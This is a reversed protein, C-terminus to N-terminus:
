YPVLKVRALKERTCMRIFKYAVVFSSWYVCFQSSNNLRIHFKEYLQNEIKKKKKKSLNEVINLCERPSFFFAAYRM